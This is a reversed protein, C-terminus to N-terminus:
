ELLYIGAFVLPVILDGPGSRCILNFYESEVPLVPVENGRTGAKCQVQFILAFTNETGTTNGPFLLRWRRSTQKKKKEHAFIHKQVKDPVRCFNFRFFKLLSFLGLHPLPYCTLPWRQSSPGGNSVLRKRCSSRGAM